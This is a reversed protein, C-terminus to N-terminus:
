IGATVVTFAIANQLAHLMIPPGLSGTREYLWALLVGFVALPPIVEWSGGVLHISGFIVGSILAAPWFSIRSRLGGFLFGRFFLEESVPAAIVILIGQAILEITNQEDGLEQLVQQETDTQVVVSYLLTFVIFIGYAAFMWGIGSWFRFRRLGLRLAAPRVGFAPLLVLPVAFLAAAFFAQAVIAAVDNEPDGAIVFPIVGLVTGIVIALVAGLAITGVSWTAPVRPGPPVPPPPAAPYATMRPPRPDTRAVLNRPSPETGETGTALLLAPIGAAEAGAIDEEETDGVVLAEEPGVGALELGRRFIEPDPKRVGATASAVVGDLHEGLGVRDLVQPLSCDWNSVCVLGLGSERLAALM